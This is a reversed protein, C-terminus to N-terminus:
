RIKKPFGVDVGNSFMCRLFKAEKRSGTATERRRLQQCYVFRLNTRRQLVARVLDRWDREREDDEPQLDTWKRDIKAHVNSM